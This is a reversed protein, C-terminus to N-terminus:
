SPIDELKKLLQRVRKEIDKYEVAQKGVYIFMLLVKYPSEEPFFSKWNLRYAERIKRKLANRDHAKRFSRKPVSVAFQPPYLKQDQSKAFHYKLLLPHVFCSQEQEFLLEIDKQSKIRLRAPFRDDPSVM